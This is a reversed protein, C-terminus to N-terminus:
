GGGALTNMEAALQNFRDAEDPHQLALQEYVRAAESYQEQSAYIRALTESVMGEIDDELDPPPVDELAPQPVIRASELESILRELDEFDKDKPPAEAPTEPEFDQWDEVVGGGDDEAAERVMAELAEIAKKEEELPTEKAKKPTGKKQSQKEEILEEIEDYISKAAEPDPEPPPAEVAEATETESAPAPAEGSTEPEAPPEEEILVDNTEPEAPPEEEEILVDDTEAGVEDIIARVEEDEQAAAALAAEVQTLAPDKERPPEPPAEPLPEAQQPLTFPNFLAELTAEFEAELDLDMVLHDEEGPPAQMAATRARALGETIAPSNPMLFHAGKWAAQAETWQEAAEYARALVVHVAAHTPMQQTWTTLLPIAEDARGAEILDLAEQLDLIAM